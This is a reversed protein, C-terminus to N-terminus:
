TSGRTSILGYRFVLSLRLEPVPRIAHRWPTKRAAGGMLVLSRRHFPVTIEEGARRTRRFALEAFGALGVIAIVDGSVDNDTHFEIGQGVQYENVSVANPRQAVYGETVLRACLAEFAPPIAAVVLGGSYGTAEVGPGYRVIRNRDPGAAIAASAGAVALLEAEQAATVFDPIVRLGDIM